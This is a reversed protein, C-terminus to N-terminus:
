ISIVQLIKLPLSPDVDSGQPHELILAMPLFLHDPNGSVASPCHNSVDEYGVAGLARLPHPCAYDDLTLTETINYL